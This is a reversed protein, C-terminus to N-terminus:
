QNSSSSSSKVKVINSEKTKTKVKVEKKIFDKRTKSKPGSSSGPVTTRRYVQVIPADEVPDEAKICTSSITDEEPFEKLTQVFIKEYEGDQGVGPPRHLYEVQLYFNHFIDVKWWCKRCLTGEEFDSQFM